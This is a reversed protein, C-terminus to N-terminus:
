ARSFVEAPGNASADRLDPSGLVRVGYDSGEVESGGLNPGLFARLCFNPYPYGRYVGKYHLGILYPYGKLISRSIHKQPDKSFGKPCLRCATPVKVCYCKIVLLLMSTVAYAARAASM